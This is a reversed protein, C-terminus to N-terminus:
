EKWNRKKYGFTVLLKSITSMDIFLLGIDKLISRDRPAVYECLNCLENDKKTECVVHRFDSYKKNNWIVILSKNKVNGLVNSQDYDHGCSVVNGDNHITMWYWPKDCKFNKGRWNQKNASWNVVPKIFTNVQYPSWKEVFQLTSNQTTKMDICQMTIYTNHKVKKALELFETINKYTKEYNAGVRAIEYNEKGGDDFSIILQDLGSELLLIGKDPTLLTANTALWTKLGHKTAFKIMRFIDKNLLPEGGTLVLLECLGKSDLVIKEFLEFTLDSKSRESKIVPCMTCKLNCRNTIEVQVISPFSEPDLVNNKYSFLLRFRNKLRSMNYLSFSLGKIIRMINKM